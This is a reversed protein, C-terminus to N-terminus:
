QPKIFHLNATVQSGTIKIEPAQIHWQQMVNVTTVPKVLHGVRRFRCSSDEKLTVFLQKYHIYIYTHLQISGFTPIQAM